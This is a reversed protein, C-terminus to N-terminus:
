SKASVTRTLSVSAAPAWQMTPAYRCMASGSALPPAGAVIHVGMVARSGGLGVVVIDRTPQGARPQAKEIILLGPEDTKLRGVLNWKKRSQRFDDVTETTFAIHSISARYGFREFREVIDSDSMSIRGRAENM